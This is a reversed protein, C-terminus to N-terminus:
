FLNSKCIEKGVITNAGSLGRISLKIDTKSITRGMFMGAGIKTNTKNNARGFTPEGDMDKIFVDSESANVEYDTNNSAKNATFKTNINRIVANSASLADTDIEDDTNNNVM